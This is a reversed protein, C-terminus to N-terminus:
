KCNLAHHNPNPILQVSFHLFLLWCTSLMHPFEKLVTPLANWTVVEHLQNLSQWSHAFSDNLCLTAVKFFRLFLIYKWKNLVKKTLIYGYSNNWPTSTKLVIRCHPFYYFYLFGKFSYTHGFKQSTADNELNPKTVATPPLLHPGLHLMTRTRCKILYLQVSFVFYCFACGFCSRWTCCVSFLFHTVRLKKGDLWHWRNPASIYRLWACSVPKLLVVSNVWLLWAFNWIPFYM